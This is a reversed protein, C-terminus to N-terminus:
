AYQINVLNRYVGQENSILEDHSGSEVMEGKDFVLINDCDKITSLRHAIVFSTRNEMLRDLAEQVIKESESDLSSTAEDLILISPNKLVARAIAVRQRQGGSLQIGRDGVLTNYGDPFTMIFSHANANKAAEIVEKNTANTNGYMINEKITGNFLIVEQPVIAMENRLLSLEYSGAEKNDFLITGKTPNYFKLLLASITSKGAGSSGVLAIRDGSKVKFSINKLVEVDKRTDYYFGVEKFEVEGKLKLPNNIEDTNIDETKEELILMLSETAGIAKQLKAYVNPLSGFSSGIFITFFIFQQFRETTIEKSDVMELGQWILFVVAGFMSVIIFSIFAARWKIRVLAHEKIKNVSKKYRFIEFSENAFSKVNAIGLLAENLISNSEAASDQTKKSLRKIFSGFIIAGATVVPVVGLMIFSLKPTFVFLFVLGVIIIIIQRVFEAITTNMTEELLNIDTAIRSSLEGVKSRNFFNMPSIILHKFSAQRLDNLANETVHGFLLIRFFSFLAQALFVLMLGIVVTNRESFFFDLSSANVINAGDSTAGGLLKGMLYPFMMATLSGLILFVFGLYFKGRYPKVFKLFTKAKQYSEKSVKTRKKRAM